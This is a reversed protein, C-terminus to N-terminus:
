KLEAFELPHYNATLKLWSWSKACYCSDMEWRDAWHCAATCMNRSCNTCLKWFGHYAFLIRYELYWPDISQVSIAAEPWLSASLSTTIMTADGGLNYDDERQGIHSVPSKLVLAKREGENKEMKKMNGWKRLWANFVLVNLLLGM